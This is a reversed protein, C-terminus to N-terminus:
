PASPLTEPALWWLISTVGRPYHLSEKALGTNDSTFQDSWCQTPAQYMQFTAHIQDVKGNVADGQLGLVKEAAYQLSLSQKALDQYDLQYAEM